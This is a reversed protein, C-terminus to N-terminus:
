CPLYEKKWIHLLRGRECNMKTVLQEFFTAWNNGYTPWFTAVSAKKLSHCQEFYGLFDGFM